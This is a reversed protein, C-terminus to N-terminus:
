VGQEVPDLLVRRQGGGEGPWTVDVDIAPNGGLVEYECRVPEQVRYGTAAGAARVVEAPLGPGFAWGTRRSPPGPWM